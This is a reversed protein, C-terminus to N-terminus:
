QPFGLPYRRAMLSIVPSQEVLQADKFLKFTGNADEYSLLLHTWNSDELLEISSSIVLEETDGDPYYSIDLSGNGASKEIKIVKM